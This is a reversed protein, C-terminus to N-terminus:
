SLDSWKNLLFIQYYNQFIKRLKEFFYMNHTSMLLAEILCRILVEVHKLLSILFIMGSNDGFVEELYTKQIYCTM